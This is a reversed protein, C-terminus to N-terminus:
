RGDDLVDRLREFSPLTLYGVNSAVSAAARGIIVCPLGAAAAGAADVDPRDGVMLVESPPLKWIECARLFGRPHPKFARVESDTSCLVPHFRGGLDLARLKANAPYDSFVGVRVGRRELFQLLADIGAARFRRLYKLPRTMMWDDVLVEVDAPPLGAAEAAAAIQAAAGTSPTSTERLQEQARRYAALARWRRPAAFPGFLPMTLLELAMLLRVPRQVYLTGDLDFLVARIRRSEHLPHRVSGASGAPPRVARPSASM